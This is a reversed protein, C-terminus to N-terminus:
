LMKQQVIQFLTIEKDLDKIVIDMFIPCIMYLIFFIIVKRLKFPKLSRWNYIMKKQNITQFQSSFQLTYKEIV